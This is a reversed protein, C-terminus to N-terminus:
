VCVANTSPWNFSSLTGPFAMAKGLGALLLATSLAMLMCSNSFPSAISPSQLFIM